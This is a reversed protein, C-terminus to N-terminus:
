SVIMLSASSDTAKSGVFLLANLISFPFVDAYLGSDEKLSMVQTFKLSLTAPSGSSAIEAAGTSNYLSQSIRACM